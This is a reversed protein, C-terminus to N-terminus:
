APANRRSSRRPSCGARFPAPRRCSRARGPRRLRSAETPCPQSPRRSRGTSWPGPAPATVVRQSVSVLCSLGRNEPGKAKPALLKQPRPPPTRAKARTSLDKVAQFRADRHFDDRAVQHVLHKELTLNDSVGSQFPPIRGHTRRKARKNWCGRNAAKLLVAVGSFSLSASITRQSPNDIDVASPSGTSHWPPTTRNSYSRPSSM